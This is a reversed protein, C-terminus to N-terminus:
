NKVIVRSDQNRKLNYSYDGTKEVDTRTIAISPQGGTWGGTKVVLYHFQSKSSLLNGIFASHNDNWIPQNSYQYIKDLSAGGGGTVYYEMEPHDYFYFHEYYHMCASFVVQVGHERFLSNYINYAPKYNPKPTSDIVVLPSHFVPIVFDIKGSALDQQAIDLENVIWNYQATGVDYYDRAVSFWTNDFPIFLNLFRINQFDYRYYSGTPNFLYKYFYSCSLSFCRYMNMLSWNIATSCTTKMIQFEHNGMSPMWAAKALMGYSGGFYTFFDIIWKHCDHSSIAMDGLNIILDPNENRLAQAVQYRANAKESEFYSPGRTDAVVIITRASRNGDAAPTRFRGSKVIESGNMLKVSYYWYRNALLGLLQYSCNYENAATTMEYDRRNETLESNTGLSIHLHQSGGTLKMCMWATTPRVNQINPSVDFHVYTPPPEGPNGGSSEVQVYEGETDETPASEGDYSWFNPNQGFNNKILHLNFGDDSIMDTPWYGPNNSIYPALVPPTVGDYSYIYTATDFVQSNIFYIKEQNQWVLLNRPNWTSGPFDYAMVPLADGDIVWIERGHSGDDAVFYLKDKYIVFEAPSSSASGPRINKRLEPDRGNKQDHLWLEEGNVGDNWAFYLKDQYEIKKVCAAIEDETPATGFLFSINAAFICFVWARLLWKRLFCKKREKM